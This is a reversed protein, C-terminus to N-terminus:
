INLSMQRFGIEWCGPKAVMRDKIYMEHEWRALKSAHPNVGEGGGEGGMYNSTWKCPSASAGDWAEQALALAHTDWEM